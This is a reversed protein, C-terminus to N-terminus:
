AASGTEDELLEVVEYVCGQVDRYIESGTFRVVPCGHALLMRDRSRDRAAQEKTREHFEHGDCEIVLRRGDKAFLLFDVRVAGLTAQNVFGVFRGIPEQLQTILAEGFAEEIPSEYPRIGGGLVLM